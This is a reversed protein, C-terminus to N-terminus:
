QRKKRYKGRGHKGKGVWVAKFFAKDKWRVKGALHDPGRDPRFRYKKDYRLDRMGARYKWARKGPRNMFTIIDKAFNKFGGYSHKLYLKQQSPTQTSLKKSTQWLAMGSNKGKLVVLDAYQYTRDKLKFRALHSEEYKLIDKEVNWIDGRQIDARTRLIPATNQTVLSGIPEPTTKAMSRGVEGDVEDAGAHQGTQRGRCRLRSGKSALAMAM